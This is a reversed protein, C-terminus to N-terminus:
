KNELWPLYSKKYNAYDGSTNDDVNMRTANGKKNYDIKKRNIKDGNKYLTSTQSYIRRWTARDHVEKM